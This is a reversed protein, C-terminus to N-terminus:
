RATAKHRHFHTIGVMKGSAAYEVMALYDTNPALQFTLRIHTFGVDCKTTGIKLLYTPLQNDPSIDVARGNHDPLGFGAQDKEVTYRAVCKENYKTHGGWSITSQSIKLTGYYAMSYRDGGEWLGLLAADEAFAPALASVLLAPALLYRV